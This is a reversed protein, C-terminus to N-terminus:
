SGTPIKLDYLGVGQKLLDRLVLGPLAVQGLGYSATFGVWITKQNMEDHHSLLGDWM